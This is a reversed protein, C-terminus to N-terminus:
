QFYVLALAAYIAAVCGAGVALLLWARLQSNKLLLTAGVCLGALFGGLHGGLSIGPTIFSFVLNALILVIPARLDRSRQRAVFIFIAMLGYLCGSAGGTWSGQELFLVGAAGGLGCIFYAVAFYRSGLFAELERGFLWLFIMNLGLHQVDLHIFTHGLLPWWHKWGTSYALSEPNLMWAQALPNAGTNSLSTSWLASFIWIGTCIAVLVATIPTTKLSARFYNVLM